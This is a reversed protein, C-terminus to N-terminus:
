YRTVRHSMAMLLSGLEANWTYYRVECGGQGMKVWSDGKSMEQSSEAQMFGM